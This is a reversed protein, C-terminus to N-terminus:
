KPRTKLLPLYRYHVELCLTNLVTVYVRGGAPGYPYGAPDWSGAAAGDKRQLPLLTKSLAVNWKESEKVEALHLAMTAYYWFYANKGGGPKPLFSMVYKISEATGRTEKGDSIFLQCFWGEPTMSIGGAGGPSYKYFGGSAGHRVSDLCKAVGDYHKKPVPIGAFEASKLALVQWGVVSTDSDKSNPAYRWGGLANQSDMILGAAKQASVLLKADETMSYAECLAATAMGHAYMSNARGGVFFYGDERQNAMLWALAKRVTEKHKGEIQTYDASLFALVALGTVAIPQNAGGEGGIQKASKFDRLDWRGDDSQNKALWELANEVAEETKESGGFAKVLKIRAEKNRARYIAKKHKVPLPTPPAAVDVATQSVVLMETSVEIEGEVEMKGVEGAEVAIQARVPAVALAPGTAKR